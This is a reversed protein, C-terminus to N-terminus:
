VVLVCLKLYVDIVNKQLTRIREEKDTDQDSLGDVNAEVKALTIFIGTMKEMNSAVSEMAREINALRSEQTCHHQEL